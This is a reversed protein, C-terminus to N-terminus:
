RIDPPFEIVHERGAADPRRMVVDRGLAHSPREIDRELDVFLCRLGHLGTGAALGILRTEAHRADGHAALQDLIGDGCGGAELHLVDEDM